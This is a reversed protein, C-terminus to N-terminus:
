EDDAVQHALSGDIEEQNCEGKQVLVKPKPVIRREDEAEQRHPECIM